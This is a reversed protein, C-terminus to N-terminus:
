YPQLVELSGLNLHHQRQCNLQCVRPGSLRILANPHTQLPPSWASTIRGRRAGWQQPPWRARRNNTAAACRQM